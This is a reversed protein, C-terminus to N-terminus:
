MEVDLSIASVLRALETRAAEHQAELSEVERRLVDLRDEQATLQATYRAVLAREERSTKLASLNERIRAQDATVREIEDQRARAESQLRNVEQAQAIVARLRPETDPALNRGRLILTVQDSTLTSLQVRSEIPRVEEVRLTATANSAATVRFRHLADTSEVPTTSDKRFQWGDRVPHELIFTRAEADENRVTYVTTGREEFYQTLIGNAIRVRSVRRAGGENSTTVRGALDVAYSIFRKEGPKISEVLGEGAFAGGEVLTLSGGDLTLGTDNTLWLARLPRGGPNSANWLSVREVAVEAQAIPVLASQNRLVTVPQSLKYEFLDGLDAASAAVETQRMRVDVEAPAPAPPASPLGGVVGGIRGGPVANSERRTKFRAPADVMEADAAPEAVREVTEAVGGIELALTVHTRAGAALSVQQESTRFGALEARLTVPGAPLGGISFRGDGDTVATAVERSGSVAAVMAGPIPGGVMDVVQGSVTASGTTMTAGHTQPTFVATRPLPIVARRTYLPQSLQQVFSQPAGAVLSLQVGTWDEGLTNDVIAWGQLFPKRSPDTPIVLRYTTKWVPVESIYSVFLDRAGTGTTSLSLRRVDQARTSALLDLYQTLEGRMEGDVLRVSVGPRLEFTRVAGGDTVITLEDVTTAREGTVHQRQELSLVRGLTTAGGGTVEVRSGRLAQLLEWKTTTPGLPLNLTRLRQELPASSNFTIGTVRGDGLDVTTLSKLVDDLQGSTLSIAVTQDGQVRGVHEFYGVGSKYLVVRRVPLRTDAAATTATQPAPQALASPPCVIFLALALASAVRFPITSM